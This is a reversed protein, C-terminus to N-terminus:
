EAAATKATVNYNVNEAPSWAGNVYAQVLYTYETDASLGTVTYWNSSIDDDVVTYTGESYSKVSYKTAGDIAPWTLLVANDGGLATPQPTTPTETDKTIIEFPATVNDEMFEDLDNYGYLQLPITGTGDDQSQFELGNENFANWIFIKIPESTGALCGMWCINIFDEDEAFMRGTIINYGPLTDEDIDAVALGLKLTNKNVEILTTQSSVEWGLIIIGGKVRGYAGDMEVQQITAVARFTGGGRTAGLTKGAAKAQAYTETRGVNKFWVGAGLQLDKVTKKTIGNLNIKRVSAVAM